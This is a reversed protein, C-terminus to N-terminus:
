SLPRRSSVVPPSAAGACGPQDWRAGRRLRRRRRVAEFVRLVLPVVVLM